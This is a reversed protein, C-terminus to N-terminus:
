PATGTQTRGLFLTEQLLGDPLQFKALEAPLRDLKNWERYLTALAEALEEGMGEHEKLLLTEAQEFQRQRTLLGAYVLVLEPHSEGRSRTRDLATAALSLALDTRGCGDLAEVHGITDNGGPYTMRILKAFFEQLAHKDGLGQYVASFIPADRLSDGTSAVALAWTPRKQKLLTEVALKQSVAAVIDAKDRWPQAIRPVQHEELRPALTALALSATTSPPMATIASIWSAARPGDAEKMMFRVWDRLVLEDPTDMRLLATVRTSQRVPDWDPSAAELKLQELRLRFREAPEKIAREARLLLSQAEVTRKHDALVRSLSLVSGTHLAQTPQLRMRAVMGVDAGGPGSGPGRTVLNMLERMEDWLGAEAVLEARLELTERAADSYLNNLDVKRVADLARTKNGQKVLLLARHLHAEVEQPWLEALEEWAALAGPIDGRRELLNALEKLYPVQAPERPGPAKVTIVDRFAQLKLHLTDQLRALFKAHKAELFNEPLNLPRSQLDAAFLKEIYPIGAACEWSSECARLLQECYELNQPSREPLRRFVEICVRPLGNVELFTGLELLAEVSDDAELYERVLRVRELHSASRLQRLLVQNRWASYEYNSKPGIAIGGLRQYMVQDAHRVPGSLGDQKLLDGWERADDWYSRMHNVEDIRPGPMVTGPPPRGMLPEAFPRQCLFGNALYDQLKAGAADEAGALGLLRIERLAGFASPPLEHLRQWSEKLIRDREQTTPALRILQTASNVFLDMARPQDNANIPTRWAELLHTYQLDPRGMLEAVQSLNSHSMGLYAPSENEMALTRLTYSPEYRQRSELKRAVDILEANSYLRSEGMLRAAEVPFTFSNDEALMHCVAQLVGRRQKREAETGKPFAAWGLADKMGHSRISLWVLLFQAELTKASGLRGHVLGRFAEGAEAYRLAWAVEIEAMGETGRLLDATTAEPRMEHRLRMLEEVARLRVQAADDPILAFEGRPLGLFTRLRDREAQDLGPANDLSNLLAIPVISQARREDLLPWPLREVQVAASATPPKSNRLLQLLTQEAAANDGMDKQQLALRLLNKVDWARVRALQEHVRRAAENQGSEEYHQALEELSAPDQLSHLELRRRAQDAEVMRFDQELLSVLERWEATERSQPATAAIQKQFYIANRLDGANMAATRLQELSFPTDPAAYYAQKMEAFAKLADGQKEYVSALAEHWFGDFPARRSREELATLLLDLRKTIETDPLSGQVVDAWLLRELARSFLDRRRKVDAEGDLLQMQTEVYEKHQRQAILIEAYRELLPASGARSDRAAKKWLSMADDRRGSELYYQSLSSLVAENRPEERALSELIRIAEAPGRPNNGDLSTRNSRLVSVHSRTELFSALNAFTVDPDRPPTLQRTDTFAPRNGEQEALRLLYSTRNSADLTSLLRLQQIALTTNKDTTALDLLLKEVEVPAPIWQHRANFHVLGILDYALQTYDARFAWWAARFKREPTMDAPAALLPQLMHGAWAVVWSPSTSWPRVLQWEAAYVGAAQALAFDQVAQPVTAKPQPPPADSGFGEGTFIAPLRFDASPQAQALPRLVQDGSLMALVREDVELRQEHSTSLTWAKELLPLAEDTAGRQALIDALALFDAPGSPGETARVAFTEALEMKSSGSFFSAIARLRRHQEETSAGPLTRWAEFVEVAEKDRQRKVLFSALEFVPETKEPDRRVRARLVLEIVSDLSRQQAFQLVLKEVEPAGGQTELLNKLRQEAKAQEKAQLHAECRMLVLAAPDSADGKLSEDLLKAAEAHAENEFLSRVLDWRYETATPFTKVLERLWKVRENSDVVLSSFRAVDSLAQERVPQEQAAKILDAKLSELQNFREHLRVLRQFFQGYRWDKFHLLALGERLSAAADDFQDAQEELRSLDYLADLRKAPDSSEALQRYLTVAKELFGAGLMLQAAERTIGAHDPQLAVAKEWASAAVDRKDASLAVRGEELLLVARAPDKEPLTEGLKHIFGLATAYEGAGQALDARARLAIANAADLKLVEDYRATAEVLKGAKRLLHAHVLLVPAQQSQAKAQTDISELLFATSNHKEYLEWLLDLVRGYEPKEVLLNLYETALRTDKEAWPKPAADATTVAAAPQAQPQSQPHSDSPESPLIYSPAPAPSSPASPASQGLAPQALAFSFALTVGLTGLAIGDWMKSTSM